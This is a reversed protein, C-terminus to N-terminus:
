PDEKLLAKVREQDGEDAADLLRYVKLLEMVMNLTARYAETDKSAIKGDSQLSRLAMAPRLGALWTTFDKFKSLHEELFGPDQVEVYKIKGKPGLRTDKTDFYPMDQGGKRFQSPPLQSSYFARQSNASIWLQPLTM